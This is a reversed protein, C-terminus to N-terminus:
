YERVGLTKATCCKCRVVETLLLLAISTVITLTPSVKVFALLQFFAIILSLVFASFSLFPSLEDHSTGWSHKGAGDKKIRTLNPTGLVTASKSYQKDAKFSRTM